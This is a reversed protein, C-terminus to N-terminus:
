RFAMVRSAPRADVVCDNNRRAVVVYAVVVVAVVTVLVHVHVHVVLAARVHALVLVVVATVAVVVVHAVVDPIHAPASRGRPSSLPSSRTFRCPACLGRTRHM